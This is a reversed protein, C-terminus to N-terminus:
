SYASKLRILHDILHGIFHVVSSSWLFLYKAHAFRDLYLIQQTKTVLYMSSADIPLYDRDYLAAESNFFNSSLLIRVPAFM